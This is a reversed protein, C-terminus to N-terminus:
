RKVEPILGRPAFRLVLLLVLGMTLLRMHAASEILHLRLWHDAAMGSTITTMLWLGIPEAEIWFFWIIFGGLVAGWNNGSGGIIVMVWILFTFRLPQYTPPNFQGDLTTLMAGAVGVVASGLIFVQLHRSTVNKGMAAAATENDRIARMMRGWPSRLAVESLYLVVLLVSAFLGAYCLKVTISAATELKMGLGTAWAQFAESQKLDVEYPVPRPLGTVNKVGRTLWEEFKLFYIIIESIGLTAIALYDSRLGLSIKGVVWAAGAAFVGGVVWSLIIPMGVGGLFGSTTADVAEIAAIAPDAILRLVVYGVLTVLGTLWYRRRGLGATRRWTYMGAAVTLLAALIAGFIGMGGAQWAATVPPVSVLMAALGGLAAFGMTGVNFLGAYGWQINVGLAMIASIICMNLLTLSVDWSQIFGVITFLLAMVAFLALNRAVASM